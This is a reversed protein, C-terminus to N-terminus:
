PWSATESPPIWFSEPSEKARRQARVLVVVSKRNVDNQGKWFM